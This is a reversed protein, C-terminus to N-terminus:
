FPSFYQTYEPLHPLFNKEEKTYAGKTMALDNQQLKYSQITLYEGKKYEDPTVFKVGSYDFTKQKIKYIKKLDGMTWKNFQGSPIRTKLDEPTLGKEKYYKWGESRTIVSRPYWDEVSRKNANLARNRKSQELLSSTKALLILSSSDSSVENKIMVNKVVQAKESETKEFKKLPATISVRPM